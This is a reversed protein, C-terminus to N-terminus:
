EGSIDEAPFVGFGGTKDYWERWYPLRRILFARREASIVKNIRIADELGLLERYNQIQLPGLPLFPSVHIAEFRNDPGDRHLKVTVSDDFEWSPKLRDYTMWAEAERQVFKRQRKAVPSEIDQRRGLILFYHQSFQRNRLAYDNVRYDKEFRTRNVSDSFWEKWETLQHSAQTLASTPQGSRTFWQKKPSEIEVFVAIIESSHGSFYLFDPAKRKLGPLEPQSVVASSMPNDEGHVFPRWKYPLFCPNVELFRQIDAEQCDDRDLLKRWDKFLRVMHDSHNPLAPPDKALAYIKRLSRPM